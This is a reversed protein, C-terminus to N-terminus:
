LTWKPKKKELSFKRELAPIWFGRSGSKLEPRLAVDIINIIKELARDTSTTQLLTYNQCGTTVPKMKLTPVNEFYTKTGTPWYCTEPWIFGQWLCCSETMYKVGVPLWNVGTSAGDTTATIYRLVM